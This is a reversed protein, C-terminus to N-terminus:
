KIKIGIKRLDKLDTHINEDLGLAVLHVLHGEDSAKVDLEEGIIVRDPYRDHLIQAGRITNHDTIAVLDMGREKTAVRYIDELENYCEKGGVMTLFKTTDAIYKSYKSHVHCDVKMM